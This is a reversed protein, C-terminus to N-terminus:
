WFFYIKKAIATTYNDFIKKIRKFCQNLFKNSSLCLSSPFLSSCCFGVRGTEILISTAEGASLLWIFNDHTNSLKIKKALATKKYIFEVLLCGTAM